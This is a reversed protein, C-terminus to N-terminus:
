MLRLAGSKRLTMSPTRRGIWACARMGTRTSRSSHLCTLASPTRNTPITWASTETGTPDTRIFTADFGYLNAAHTKDDDGLHRGTLFSTGLEINWTKSVDHNWLLRANLAPSGVSADNNFVPAEEGGGEGSVIEGIIEVYHNNLYQPPIVYSISAGADSLAEGGLFSQNVFNNDTTPWDHEHLINQRGFRLHFRGLKVAMNAIGFNHLNLYAEELEVGSEV